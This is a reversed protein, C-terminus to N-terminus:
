DNTGGKLWMIIVVLAFFAVFGVGAFGVDPVYAAVSLSLFMFASLILGNLTIELWHLGSGYTSSRQLKIQSVIAFGLALVFMLWSFSLFKRVSERDFHVKSSLKSPSLKRIAVPDPLDTLIVSFTISAGFTSIGIIGKSFSDWWHLAKRETFDSRGHELDMPGKLGGTNGYEQFEPSSMNIPIDIHSHAKLRVTFWCFYLKREYIYIIM